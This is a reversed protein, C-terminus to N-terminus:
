GGGGGGGRQNSRSRGRLCSGGDEASPEEELGAAVIHHQERSRKCRVGAAFRRTRSRLRYEELLAQQEASPLDGCGEPLALAAARRQRGFHCCLAVAVSVNLSESLGFLPVTFTGDCLQLMTASVGLRENGFVVATPIGFDLHELARPRLPLAGAGSTDGAKSATATPVVAALVSFDQAHLDQLCAETSAHTHIELWKEGGNVISRGRATGGQATSSKSHIEHVHLLGLAEVSRLIAARNGFDGLDELVVRLGGMRARAAGQLRLDREGLREDLADGDCGADDTVSAISESM